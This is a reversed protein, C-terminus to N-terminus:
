FILYCISYFLTIVGPILLFDAAKSWDPYWTKASVATFLLCISFATLCAALLAPEIFFAFVVLAVITVLSFLVTGCMLRKPRDGENLFLIIKIM